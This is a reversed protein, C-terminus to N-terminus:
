ALIISGTQIQRKQTALPCTQRSFCALKQRVRCSGEERLSGLLFELSIPNHLCNSSEGVEDAATKRDPDDYEGHQTEHQRRCEAQERWPDHHEEADDHEAHTQCDGALVKGFHGATREVDADTNQRLEDNHRREGHQEGADNWHRRFHSRADDQDPAARATRGAVNHGIEALAIHRQADGAGAHRRQQRRDDGGKRTQINALWYRGTSASLM